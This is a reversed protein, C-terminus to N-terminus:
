VVPAITGGHKGEAWPRVPWLGWRISIFLEWISIMKLFDRDLNVEPVRSGLFVTLTRFPSPFLPMGEQEQLHLMDGIGKM